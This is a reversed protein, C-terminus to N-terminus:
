HHQQMVWWWTTCYRQKKYQTKENWKKWGTSIGTTTQM